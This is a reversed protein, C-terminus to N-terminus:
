RGSQDAAWMLRRGSTMTAPVKVLFRHPGPAWAQIRSNAWEIEEQDNVLEAVGTVLVSWGTRYMLDIEDAEISVVQGEIVADLKSGTDTFFVVDEDVVALNVPLAAPICDISLVVRGITAGRLLELCQDRGLEVAAFNSEHDRITVM